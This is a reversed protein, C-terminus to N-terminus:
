FSSKRLSGVSYTDEGWWKLGSVFGTKSIDHKRKELIGSLPFHEFVWYNQHLKLVVAAFVLTKLTNCHRVLWKRAVYKLV